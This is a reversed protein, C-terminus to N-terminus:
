SQQFFLEYLAIACVCVRVPTFLTILAPVLIYFRDPMNSTVDTHGSQCRKHTKLLNSGITVDYCKSVKTQAVM